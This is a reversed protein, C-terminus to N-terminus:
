LIAVSSGNIQQISQGDVYLFITTPSGRAARINAPTTAANSYLYWGRTQLTTAVDFGVLANVEAIQLPSLQVGGQFGGYAGFQNITGACGEAILADGASNYPIIGLSTLLEMM